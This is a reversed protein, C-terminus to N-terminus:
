LVLLKNADELLLFLELNISIFSSCDKISLLIDYLSVTDSNSLINLSASFKFIFIFSSIELKFLINKM